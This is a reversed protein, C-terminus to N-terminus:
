RRGVWGDAVLMGLGGRQRYGLHICMEVSNPGPILNVAGMLDLLEGRTLWKRRVVLDEELM